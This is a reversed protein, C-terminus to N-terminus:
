ENAPRTDSIMKILGKVYPPVWRSKHCLLQSYYVQPEANIDLAVVEGNEIQRQVAYEPLFALGVGKKVLQAIVFINDVEVWDNVSLNNKAALHTLHNYCIGEHETTVFNNEFLKTLPIQKQGALPHNKGAIFILNEKRIYHCTLNEDSTKPRSIYVIDLKNQKLADLLDTTHGSIIKLDVNKYMAKFQPLINLFVGILLSESVGVRLLGKVEEDNVPVTKAMQAVNVMQYAYNLMQEGLATLSIKKGIRDFLPYGLEKELQKIQTTVTSQVYSLEEAAKTISGLEAVKIFTEISRIDMGIGKDFFVILLILFMQKIFQNYYM